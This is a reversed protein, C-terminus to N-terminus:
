AAPSLAPRAVAVFGYALSLPVFGRLVTDAADCLPSSVVARESLVSEPLLRSVAFGAEALDGLFEAPSFLHYYLNIAVDGSRREYTIDGPELESQAILRGAAHQERRFRRVRNPVSAILRGGPLLKARLARLLAIRRARGAIHGLVGFLLMVLDFHPEGDLRVTLDELSGSLIELRLPPGGTRAQESCRRSLELIAVPSIDYAFVSIGPQGALPVAYRGCGCGFDLVHGGAPGLESRILRLVHRNPRPYRRAYLGTAYYLDYSGQLNAVPAGGRRAESGYSQTLVSM